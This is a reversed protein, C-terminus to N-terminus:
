GLSWLVLLLKYDCSSRNTCCHHDMLGGFSLEKKLCSKWIMAELEVMCFRGDHVPDQGGIGTDFECLCTIGSAYEQVSSSFVCDNGRREV